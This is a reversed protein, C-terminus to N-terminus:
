WRIGALRLGAPADAATTFHQAQWGCARAAAVNPEHDDLFVLTEPEAEFRRAALEFIAADPKALQVRGSFVGSAFRRFVPERAELVAAIPAPMNSLYHLRYGAGHLADILAVTEPIPQLAEPVHDVVAQVESASLGTRAAIRRVLDPVEVTGRDFDGWDGGYSQFIEREWHAADADSAIRPGLATRLVERPQWRLVVAGLDFVIRLTTM